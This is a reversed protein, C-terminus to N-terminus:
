GCNLYEGSKETKNFNISIYINERLSFVGIRRPVLRSCLYIPTSCYRLNVFLINRQLFNDVKLGFIEKSVLFLEPLFFRLNLSVNLQLHQFASNQIRTFIKRILIQVRLCFVSRNGDQYFLGKIIEESFVQCDFIDFFFICM